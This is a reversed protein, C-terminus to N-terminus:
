EEIINCEPLAEYEERDMQGVSVVIKSGIPSNLLYTTVETTDDTLFPKKPPEPIVDYVRIPM